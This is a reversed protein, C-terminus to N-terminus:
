CQLQLIWTELDVRAGNHIRQERQQGGVSQLRVTSFLLIFNARAAIRKVPNSPPSVSLLRHGNEILFSNKFALTCIFIRRCGAREAEEEEEEEEKPEFFRQHRRM